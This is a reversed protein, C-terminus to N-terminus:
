RSSTFATGDSDDVPRLHGRRPPRDGQHV